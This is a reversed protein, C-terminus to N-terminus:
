YDLSYYQLSCAETNTISILKSKTGITNVAFISNPCKKLKTVLVPSGLYAINPFYQMEWVYGIGDSTSLLYVKNDAYYLSTFLQSQADCEKMGQDLSLNYYNYENSVEIHSLELTSMDLDGKIIYLMKQVPNHKCLLQVFINLGHYSVFGILKYCSECNCKTPHKDLIATIIKRRLNSRSCITVKKYDCDNKVVISWKHKPIIALKGKIFGIFKIKTKSFGHVCELNKESCNDKSEITKLKLIPNKSATTAVYIIGDQYSANSIVIDKYCKPLQVSHHYKKVQAM